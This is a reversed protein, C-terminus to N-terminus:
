HLIGNQAPHTSIQVGFLRLVVCLRLGVNHVLVMCEFIGIKQSLCVYDQHKENLKVAVQPIMLNEQQQKAFLQNQTPNTQTQM